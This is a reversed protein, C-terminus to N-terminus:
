EDMDFEAERITGDRGIKREIGHKKGGFYNV